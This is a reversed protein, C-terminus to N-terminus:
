PASGGMVALIGSGGNSAGAPSAIVCPKRYPRSALLVLVARVRWLAIVSTM